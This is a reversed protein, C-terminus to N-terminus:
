SFLRVCSELCEPVRHPPGDGEQNAQFRKEVQGWGRPVAPCGGPGRSVAKTREKAVKREVNRQGKGNSGMHGM